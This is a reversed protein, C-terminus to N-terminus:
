FFPARSSNNTRNTRAARRLGMILVKKGACAAAVDVPQPPFVHGDCITVAPVSDGAAVM